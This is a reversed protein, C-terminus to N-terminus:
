GADGVDGGREGFRLLVSLALARSPPDGARDKVGTAQLAAVRACFHRESRSCPLTRPHGTGPVVAEGELGRDALRAAPQLAEGVDRGGERLRARPGLDGVDDDVLAHAGRLGVRAREVHEVLRPRRQLEHAIAADRGFEELPDAADGIARVRRVGEPRQFGAAREPGLALSVVELEKRRERPEPRVRAPGLCEPAKGEDDLALGHTEEPHAKVLRARERGLLAHEDLRERLLARLREHARGVELPFRSGLLALSNAALKERRRALREDRREVVPRDEPRHSAEGNRLERVPAGDLDLLRPRGSRLLHRHRVRIRALHLERALEAFAVRGIGVRRRPDGLHDAGALGLEVGLDRRREEFRAGLVGLM